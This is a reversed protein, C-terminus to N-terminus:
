EALTPLNKPMVGRPSNNNVSLWDPWFGLLEVAILGGAIAVVGVVMMVREKSPPNRVMRAMRMFWLINM